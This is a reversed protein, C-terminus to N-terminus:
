GAAWRHRAVGSRQTACISPESCTPSAAATMPPATRSSFKTRWFRPPRISESRVVTKAASISAAGGQITVGSISMTGAHVDFARDLSAADVVTFSTGAGTITVDATVDLDGTAALDEGAGAIGLTYSGAPVTITQHGALANAEQIAARLTCEPDSGVLNGTDCSGDGPVLDVVDALSNVLFVSGPSADTVVRVSDVFYAVADDPTGSGVVRIWTDPEAYASIDYSKTGAASFTELTTWTSGGDTSVESRLSAGSGTRAVDFTWTATTAATLDVPRAWGRDTLSQEDGGIRICTGSPCSGSTVVQARGAALGDSEGQEVWPTTTWDITGDSGSLAVTGFVDYYDDGLSAMATFRTVFVDASGGLSTDYAGVTTALDGSSTDGAIVARRQSDLAVTYAAEGSSGGVYSLFEDTSGDPSLVLIMADSSGGLTTDPAGVTALGSSALVGTVHAREYVDVVVANAWDSGGGGLLTSWTLAASGTQSQDFRAIWGDSGGGYTTDYAGVTTPFGSAQTEGVVVAQTPSVVDVDWGYDAGPGGIFTGYTLSAGTSSLTGYWGDLGGNLTTDYAGATTPFSSSNTNGTMHVADGSDVSVGRVSDDATSGVFTSWLLTGAASVKAVFGDMSGSYTQDWTGATTPFGSSYTVGGLVANGTSDLDVSRLEDSSAGGLYTSSVLSAGDAALRSVFADYNGNATTDHVGGTVPFNASTTSGVVVVRDSGDVAVEVPEDSASGGLYTSWLLSSGDESLKSVVVDTSGNASVDYAGVTTPYDSASTRGIVVINDASDVAVADGFDSGTGGVYTTLDVTPDIILPLDQDYDGIEFTVQRGSVAYAAEVAVQEGEVLQYAVPASFVLNRGGPVVLVLSGDPHTRLNAIGEFALSIEDPDAGPDIIVDYRFGNDDVIYRVDIGELLDPYEVAEALQAGRVWRSPENGFLYNVEPGGTGSAVSESEPDAGGFRMAIVRGTAGGRVDFLVEEPSVFVTSTGIRVLHDVRDDFQGLNPEFGRLAAAGPWDAPAAPERGGAGNTGPESREPGGDTEPQPEDVSPDDAGEPGNDPTAPSTTDPEIPPPALLEVVTPITVRSTGDDVALMVRHLGDGLGLAELSARDIEVSAGSADDFDGDGDLDWSFDVSDDAPESLVSAELQLSAGAEVVYPGGPWPRPPETEPPAAQLAMSVGLWAADQALGGIFEGLDEGMDQDEVVDLTAYAETTEMSSTNATEPAAFEAPGAAAFLRLVVSPLETVVGPATADIGVGSTAAVAGVPADPDVGDFRFLDARLTSPAQWAQLEGSIVEDLAPGAGVWIQQFVGGGVSESVLEVWGPREISAPETRLLRVVAADVGPAASPGFTIVDGELTAVTHDLLTPAPEPDAENQSRYRVTVTTTAPISTGAQLAISYVGPGDIGLDLLAEWPLDVESGVADDFEADGDLDWVFADAPLPESSQAAGDMVLAEGETLVYPGNTFAVDEEDQATAGWEPLFAVILLFVLLLPFPTNTAAHRPNLHHRM